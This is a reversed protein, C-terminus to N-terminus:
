SAPMYNSDLYNYNGPMNNFSMYDQDQTPRTWTRKVHRIRHSSNHTATEFTGLNDACTECFDLSVASPCDVCHWRTGVIPECGCKDCKFGTHKPLSPDLAQMTEQRLEKLMMLEKYEATDTLQEPISENDSDDQVSMKDESGTNSDMYGDTFGLERGQASSSEHSYDEDENMMVPPKYSQLFTSDRFPMWSYRHHRHGGRKIRSPRNPARGPIPLKAKELKEFYKQVRSAIQQPTRDGFAAAIKRWRRAEIEEPPYRVLLEDLRKQEEPSWLKNFTAPKSDDKFRGRVFGEPLGEDGIGTGGVLSSKLRLLHEDEGTENGHRKLRASQRHTGFSAFDVSSTYKEWDIVPLSAIKQPGPLKMGLDAGRQLKDVFAIPDQLVKEQADHLLDLDDLAKSRQSELICITRLLAHYDPNGKLAVHDSEFCYADGITEDVEDFSPIETLDTNDEMQM